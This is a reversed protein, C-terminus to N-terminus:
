WSALVLVLRTILLNIKKKLFFFYFYFTIIYYSAALLNIFNKLNKQGREIERKMMMMARNRTTETPTNLLINM